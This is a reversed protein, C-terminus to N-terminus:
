LMKVFIITDSFGYNDKCFGVAIDSDSSMQGDLITYTIGKSTMLTGSISGRNNVSITGGSFTGSNAEVDKWTGGVIKGSEDVIIEGYFIEKQDAGFVKWKGSISSLSFSGDQKVAVTAIGEFRKSIGGAFIICDKHLNMQGNFTIDYREGNSAAIHGSIAGEHTISYNGKCTGTEGQVNVYSGSVIDGTRTLAVSCMGELPFIWTGELDSLLFKNDKKVLIGVGKNAVPFKGAYVIMDKQLTMQGDLMQYKETTDSDPLFTDIIGTVSGDETINLTGGKFQEIDVGFNNIDGGTVKGSSNVTLSGSSNFPGNNQYGFSVMKWLGEMHSQTFAIKKSSSGGCGNFVLFTLLCFMFFIFFPYKRRDYNKMVGGNIKLVSIGKSCPWLVAFLSKAM